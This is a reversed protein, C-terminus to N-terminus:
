MGDMWSRASGATPSPLVSAGRAANFDCGIGRLLAAILVAILLAFRIAFQGRRSLIVSARM